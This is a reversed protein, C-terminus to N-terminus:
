EWLYRQVFIGTGGRSKVEVGRRMTIRDKSTLLGPSSTALRFPPTAPPDMRWPTRFIPSRM